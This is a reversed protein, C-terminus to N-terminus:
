YYKRKKSRNSKSKRKSCINQRKSRRNKRKNKCITNKFKRNRKRKQGGKLISMQGEPAIEEVSEIREIPVSLSLFKGRTTPNIGEPNYPNKPYEQTLELVVGFPENTGVKKAITYRLIKADFPDGPEYNFIQGNATTHEQTNLVFNYTNETILTGAKLEDLLSM